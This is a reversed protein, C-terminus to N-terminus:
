GYLLRVHFIKISGLVGRVFEAVEIGSFTTEESIHKQVVNELLFLLEVIAKM